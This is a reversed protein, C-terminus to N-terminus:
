AGEIVLRYTKAASRLREVLFYFGRALSSKDRVNIKIEKECNEDPIDFARNIHVNVLIDRISDWLYRPLYFKKVHEFPKGDNDTCKVVISVVAASSTNSVLKRSESM